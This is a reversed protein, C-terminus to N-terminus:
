KREEFPKGRGLGEPWTLPIGLAKQAEHWYETASDRHESPLVTVDKLYDLCEQFRHTKCLERALLIKLPDSHPYAAHYRRAEGLAAEFDSQEDFHRVLARGVRWSDSLVAARRLDALRAAGKRRSARYLYFTSADPEDGCGDLLADAEADYQFFALLVADLYSFKWHGDERVVKALVPLEERRFPFVGDVSLAKAGAVDGLRLRAVASGKARAFLAAADDTLGTEAYWSGLELWTEDPLENSVHRSCDTEGGARTLEYRAAHFLPYKGLVARARAAADPRDRGAILLVLEADLNAANAALAKRAAAEAGARDGDRLHARAILACAAARFEPHFSAVGLRERTSVTDGEAFYAFGDLYNAEADYVDVRQARRCLEHVAAYNGRRLQYGALATLAPVFNPEKSLAKELYERGTREDRERLAQEGRRYLGYSTTWDFNEAADISRPVPMPKEMEARLASEERVPEWRDVFTECSGPAFTPHKFPSLYNLYRPQNFVRGSQLEAYQGDADTLLDEWIVGERSLAWFFLKRGYKETPDNRHCAGCGLGKWWIGFFGNNGNIVHYSKSGGFDNQAYTSLRRKGDTSLPWNRTDIEGQHGISATGPYYFEPDDSVSFAANMWHYYPQPLGSANYWTTRTEFGDSEDNLRIEVQWWSRTVFEYSAVFCSVSADENTRVCWDVPTSSSPAHGIIGFNFEIGGSLWPGRMAIDRFKMVHNCYLLDRGSVKDTASWVKGGVEPMVVVRTKANELVVQKWIRKEPSATSGDYRFYPYRKEATAPVPDPDSFPYTTLEVNSVSVAACAVAMLNAFLIMSESITLPSTM